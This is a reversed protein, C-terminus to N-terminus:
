QYRDEFQLSCAVDVQSRNKFKIYLMMIDSLSKLNAENMKKLPSIGNADQFIPVKFLEDGENETVESDNPEQYPELLSKLQDVSIIQSSPIEVELTAVPRLLCFHILPEHLEM